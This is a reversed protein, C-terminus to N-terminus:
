RFLRLVRATLEQPSFPKTIYDDAGLEFARTVDNERGRASMVIVRPRPAPLERLRALVDFGTLKPMMLDLLVVDPADRAVADLTQQGDFAIRTDLGAARLRSDVIHVVDPDDEAILVRRAAPRGSEQQRGAIAVHVGSVRASALALDAEALLQQVDGQGSEQWAVGATVDGLRRASLRTIVADLRDAAASVALEPFLVLLHAESYRGVLDKRRFEEVLVRAVEGYDHSCRILALAGGSTALTENATLVFTEYTLVPDSPPPSVTHPQSRVSGSRAALRGVRLLLDAREFPKTLYDDAGLALGAARDLPQRRSTLFIVPIRALAPDSKFQRCMQYGDIGPLDIDLLIADPNLRRATSISEEGSAAEIVRYGASKLTAAIISRQDPDDELVFITGERSRPGTTAWHPPVAVEHTFTEDLAEVISRARAIDLPITEALSELESAHTSVGRLGVMGAIGAMRHALRCLAAGAAGGGARELTDLLVRFNHIGEPFMSIFRARATRLADEPDDVTLDAPLDAM